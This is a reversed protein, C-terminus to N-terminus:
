IALALRSGEIYSFIVKCKQGEQSWRKPAPRITLVLMSATKQKRQTQSLAGETGQAPGSDQLEQRLRGPAPITPESRNRAHPVCGKLVSSQECM